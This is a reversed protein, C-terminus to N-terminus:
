TAREASKEGTFCLSIHSSIHKVIRGKLLSALVGKMNLYLRKPCKNCSSHKQAHNRPTPKTQLSRRGPGSPPQTETDRVEGRRERDGGRRRRMPQNQESKGPGPINRGERFCRQTWAFQCHLTGDNQLIFIENGMQNCIRSRVGLICIPQRGRPFYRLGQAFIIQTLELRIHHLLWSVRPM